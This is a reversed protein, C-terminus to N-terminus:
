WRGRPFPWSFNDNFVEVDVALARECARGRFLLRRDPTSAPMSCMRRRFQRHERKRKGRSFRLFDKIIRLVNTPDAQDACNYEDCRGHKGVILCRFNGEPGFTRGAELASFILMTNALLFVAHIVRYVIHM